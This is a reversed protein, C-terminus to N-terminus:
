RTRILDPYDTVIGSVGMAACAAILGADNPTYCWVELGEAEAAAIQTTGLVGTHLLLVEADLGRAEGPLEPRWHDSLFGLRVEKSARRFPVLWEAHFSMVLVDSELDYRRLAELVVEPKLGVKLEIIPRAYPGIAMLAEQLSPVRTGAFRPHKWSGADLQLLDTWTHEAVPGKGSTTRDLTSDHLVVPVGDATMRVDFEVGKAGLGLAHEFSAVTNEPAYGSAGRHGIVKVKKREHAM